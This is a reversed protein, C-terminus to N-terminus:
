RLNVGGVVSGDPFHRVGNKHMTGDPKWSKRIEENREFEAKAEAAAAAAAAAAEADAKRKAELAASQAKASELEASKIEAEKLTPEEVTGANTSPPEARYQMLTNEEVIEFKRGQNHTPNTIDKNWDNVDAEQLKAKEMEMAKQRKRMEPVGQMEIADQLEMNNSSQESFKYPNGFAYDVGNGSLRVASAYGVLAIIAISLSKM